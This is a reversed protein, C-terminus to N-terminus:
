CAAGATSSLTHDTVAVTTIHQSRTCVMDTCNAAVHHVYVGLSSAAGLFKESRQANLNDCLLLFRDKTNKKFGKEAEEAEAKAIFKKLTNNVWQTSVATDAWANKQIVVCLLVNIM